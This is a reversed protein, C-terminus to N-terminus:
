WQKNKDTEPLSLSQVYLVLLHMMGLHKWLFWLSSIKTLYYINPTSQHSSSTLTQPSEAM